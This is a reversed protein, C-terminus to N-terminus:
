RRRESQVRLAGETAHLAAQSAALESELREIEAAQELVLKILGVMGLEPDGPQRKTLWLHWHKQTQGGETTLNISLNDIRGLTQNVIEVLEIFDSLYGAAYMFTLLDSLSEVHLSPIILRSDPADLPKILYWGGRQAIIEEEPINTSGGPCFRCGDRRTLLM